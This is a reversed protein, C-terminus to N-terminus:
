DPRLAKMQWGADICVPQMRGARPKALPCLRWAGEVSYLEGPRPPTAIARVTPPLVEATDANHDGDFVGLLRRSGVPRIRFTPAGNAALLRGRVTFCPGVVRPSERCGAAAAPVPAAAMTLAACAVLALRM